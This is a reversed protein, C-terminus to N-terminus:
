PPKRLVEGKRDFRGGHCPCIFCSESGSWNVNCDLHTCAADLAVVEGKESLVFIDRRNFTLRKVKGSELDAVPGADLRPQRRPLIPTLYRFAAAVVAAAYAVPTLVLAAHQFARRTWM